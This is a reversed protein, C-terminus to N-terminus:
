KLIIHYGETNEAKLTDLIFCTEDPINQVMQDSILVHIGTPGQRYIHQILRPSINFLTALKEQLEAATLEELFVAHYVYIASHPPGGNETVAQSPQTQAAAKKSPQTEQCVYMTLRPRVSRAKVANYLRIGDAAGCIQVLDDRSLKLLDAGTFNSFLRSFSSFRHQHLWQQMEQITATPSLKQQELIANNSVDNQHNPSSCDSDNVVFTTAAASSTAPQFSSTAAVTTTTTTTTTPSNDLYTTDPWPSCSSGRKAHYDGVEVLMTRKTSKKLENEHADGGNTSARKMETLITTDYSLQYKEKELPTRKEMKDRDTKQKRDAGKPKFVKVQCSASHLHETYEGGDNQKFTDIQVRFPVGKEGGHKRPTFETSICNVQIFVSSRKAPDWLFEVTNLLTPNARPDVIGVSMPMDIDLIRDGPRNWKWSELQQHETYQLRRDHFVVRVISKVYKGNIEPLEGMKRNDLMRLEYSQGALVRVCTRACVCLPIVTADASRVRVSAHEFMPALRLQSPGDLTPTTEQEFSCRSPASRGNSNGCEQPPHLHMRLVVLEAIGFIALEFGPRPLHFPALSPVMMERGGSDVCRADVRRRTLPPQGEALSAASGGGGVAGAM